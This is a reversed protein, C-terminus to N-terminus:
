PCDKKRYIIEGSKITMTNLNAAVDYVLESYNDAEFVAFDADKGPEISGTNKHIDLAKAANITFATIAEEITMKMKLCALSMILGISSIHSSGPNYDTSLAATGGSDIIQRAPAYGYDLFFSVGPLLVAVLDSSILKKLGEENLVELHDISKCKNKIAIDIGGIVNFQESHLKLKYGLEAARRFIIDTESASFATAECFADCFVALNEEKVAPLMEDLLYTIYGNRDKKYEPPFTHAGLFTPIINIKYNEDLKKIVKLLKKEDELSLGYGSKIELSTVGQSIFRDIRPGVIEYIEDETASRVAKVTANIGGGKRAIDEYDVGAIKQRFEDARSGAFATHTHCDILGPLVIKGTLDIINDYQNEELLDNSILKEIKGDKILLSHNELIGTDNMEKGSKYNKGNTDVTIIQHPNKLVTIM